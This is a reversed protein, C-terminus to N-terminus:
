LRARSKSRFLIGPFALDTYSCMRFAPFNLSTFSRKSFIASESLAARAPGPDDCLSLVTNRSPSPAFGVRPRYSIRFSSPRPAMPM